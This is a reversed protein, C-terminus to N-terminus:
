RIFPRSRPKCYIISPNPSTRPGRWPASASSSCCRCCAGSSTCLGDNFQYLGAVSYYAIAVGDCIAFYFFIRYSISASEPLYSPDWSMAWDSDIQPCHAPIGTVIKSSLSLYILAPVGPPHPSRPCRALFPVRESASAIMFKSKESTM